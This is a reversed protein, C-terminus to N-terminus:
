ISKHSSLFPRCLIGKGKTREILKPAHSFAFNRLQVAPASTVHGLHPGTLLYARGSLPEFWVVAFRSYGLFCIIYKTQKPLPLFDVAPFRTLLDLIIQWRTKQQKNGVETNLDDPSEETQRFVHHLLASCMRLLM